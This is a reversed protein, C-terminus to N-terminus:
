NDGQEDLEARQKKTLKECVQAYSHRVWDHIEEFPVDADLSVSIWFRADLHSRHGVGEYQERLALARDPACKLIVGEQGRISAIAFIKEKVKYMLINPVTARPPTMPTPVAGPMAEITKLLAEQRSSLQLGYRAALEQGTENQIPSM